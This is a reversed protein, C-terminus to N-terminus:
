IDKKNYKVIYNKNIGQAIIHFYSTEIYNRPNRPMIVVGLIFFNQSFKLLM